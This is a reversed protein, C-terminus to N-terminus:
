KLMIKIFHEKGVLMVHNTLHYEIVYFVSLPRKRQLKKLDFIVRAADHSFRSKAYAFVFACILQHYMALEIGSSGLDSIELRKCKRQSYLGTQTSGPSFSRLCAKEHHPKYLVTQLKIM